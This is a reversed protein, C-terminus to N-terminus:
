FEYDEKEEYDDDIDEYDEEDDKGTGDIQQRLGGMGVGTGIGSSAQLNTEGGEGVTELKDPDSDEYDDEEYDEDKSALQKKKQQM